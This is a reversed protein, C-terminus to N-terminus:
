RLFATGDKWQTWETGVSSAVYLVENIIEGFCRAGYIGGRFPITLDPFAPFEEFAGGGFCGAAASELTGCTSPWGRNGGPKLYGKLKSLSLNSEHYKELIL